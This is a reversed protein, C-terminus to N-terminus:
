QACVEGRSVIDGGLASQLSDLDACTIANNGTLGITTASNMDFLASIDALQNSDLYLKSHPLKNKSSFPWM